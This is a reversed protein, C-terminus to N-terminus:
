DVLGTVTDLGEVGEMDAGSLDAGTLDQGSFDRGRLEQGSYDEFPMRAPYRPVGQWRTSPPDLGKLM